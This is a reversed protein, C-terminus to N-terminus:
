FFRKHVEGGKEFFVAILLNALKFYHLKNETLHNGGVITDRSFKRDQMVTHVDSARLGADQKLVDVCKLLQRDPTRSEHKRTCHVLILAVEQENRVYTMNYTIFTVFLDKGSNM